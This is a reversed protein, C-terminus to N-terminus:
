KAGRAGQLFTTADSSQEAFGRKRALSVVAAEQQALKGQLRLLQSETARAREVVRTTETTVALKAVNLWVIGGLLLAALPILLIRLRPRTRARPAVARPRAPPTARRPASKTAPRRAAAARTSM